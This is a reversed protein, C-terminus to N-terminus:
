SNSVRRPQLQLLDHLHLPLLPPLPHPLLVYQSILVEERFSLSSHIIAMYVTGLYHVPKDYFIAFTKSYGDKDVAWGARSLVNDLSVNNKTAMLVGASRSSHVKFIATDVKGETMAKKMWGSITQIAAAPFPAQSSRWLSDIDTLLEETRAKYAELYFVPDLTQTDPLSAVFIGERSGCKERGAPSFHIFLQEPGPELPNKMWSFSRSLAKLTSMRSITALCTLALTKYSLQHLTLSEPPHLTALHDLVPGAEWTSDYRPKRARREPFLNGVGKVLNSISSSHGVSVGAVDDHIKAVASRYSCVASQGLNREKQVWALFNAVDQIPCSFPDVPPTQTKCWQLYVNLLAQYVKGTSNPRVSAAMLGAAESSFGIDQLRDRLVGAGQSTSSSPSSDELDLTSQAPPPSPPPSTFSHPLSSVVTASTSLNHTSARRTRAGPIPGSFSEDLIADRVERFRGGEYYKALDNPDSEHIVTRTLDVLPQDKETPSAQAQSAPPAQERDVALKEQFSDPISPPLSALHCFM